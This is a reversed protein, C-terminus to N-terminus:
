ASEDKPMINSVTQAPTLRVLVTMWHLEKDTCIM